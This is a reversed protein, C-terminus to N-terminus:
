SATMICFSVFCLGKGRAAAAVAQQKLEYHNLVDPNDHPTFVARFPPIWETVNELLNLISYAGSLFSPNESAFSTRAVTIPGDKSKALTFSEIHQERAKVAVLSVWFKGYQIISFHCVLEVQQLEWPDVGWFPELDHYIQDYEDPLQVNNEQVYFWWADFGLPPPRHYRRKYEKVAGALTKSASDLKKRWAAQAREILEFIPHPGDPNTVLLGNSLYEHARPKAASAGDAELLHLIASRVDNSYDSLNLVLPNPPDESKSTEHAIDLSPANDLGELVKSGPLFITLVHFSDFIPMLTVTGNSGSSDVEPVEQVLVEENEDSTLDTVELLGLSHHTPVDYAENSWTYKESLASDSGGKLYLFPIFVAGVLSLVLIRQSRYIRRNLSVHVAM